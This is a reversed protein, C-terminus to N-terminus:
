AIVLLSMTTAFLPGFLSSSTGGILRLSLETYGAKLNPLVRVKRKEFPEKHFYPALVEKAVKELGEASARGMLTMPSLRKAFRTRKQGKNDMADSCIKKVLSVPEVPALTKFFVM